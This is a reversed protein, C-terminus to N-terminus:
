TGGSPSCVQLDRNSDELAASFEGDIGGQDGRLLPHSAETEKAEQQAAVVLGNRTAVAISIALISTYTKM